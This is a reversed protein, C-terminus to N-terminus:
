ITGQSTGKVPDSPPLWKSTVPDWEIVRLDPDSGPWSNWTIRAFRDVLPMYVDNSYSHATSPKGDSYLFTARGSRFDALAQQLDAVPSPDTRRRWVRDGLLPNTFVSNDGSSGHGGEAGGGVLDDVTRAQADRWLAPAISGTILRCEGAALAPPGTQAQVSPVSLLLCLWTLSSLRKM